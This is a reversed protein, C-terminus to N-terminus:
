FVPWGVAERLSVAHPRRTIAFDLPLLAIVVAITATWLVPTGITELSGVPAEPLAALVVDGPASVM